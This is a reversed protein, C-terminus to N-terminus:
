ANKESRRQVLAELLVNLNTQSPLDELSPQMRWCWNTPQVTGPVNIRESQPDTPVCDPSLALLDQLPHIALQSGSDQLAELLVQQKSADETTNMPALAQLLADDDQAEDALWGRLTTSDHVSATAVSLKPYDSFPIYPQGEHDWQRNWRLVKLGLIGMDALTEPVWPPVAGLDEACVLMSGDGKMMELLARGELNWQGDALAAKSQILSELASQEEQNLSQWGRTNRYIWSATFTNDDLRLLTRDRMWGALKGKNEGSIPLSDIQAEFLHLSKGRWLDEEGVRELFGQVISAESGFAERLEHGPFHAESMWTIRGEDWGLNKLEDLHIPVAPEFHGCIASWDQEPVAWIRFFGLVHDIRYAHYFKAAQHLRAKWWAFNTSKLYAWNYTPFGWNQGGPSGADPPAGARLHLHFNERHAWVDASDDNILIPIDGKLAVGLADLQTAVHLFQEELRWQMWVWFMAEEAEQKWLSKLEDANPNRHVSWDKWSRLDERERFLSFLAYPQCWPNEKAWEQAQIKHSPNCGNWMSKLVDLKGQLVADFQISGHTNLSQQLAAIKESVGTEQAEPFDQLRALVPHLAMASLASYPSREFGTDNVPLIQILQIGRKAAWEALPILDPFEGIGLSEKSRLGSVPLAIGTVPRSAHPYRM